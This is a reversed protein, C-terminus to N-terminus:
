SGTRDTESNLPKGPPEVAQDIKEPPDKRDEDERDLVEEARKLLLGYAHESLLGAAFALLYLTEQRVEQFSANSLVAHAAMDLVFMALALFMGLIPRFIYASLGGKENPLLYDKTLFILSGFAGLVLLIIFTDMLRIKRNEAEARQAYDEMWLKVDVPVLVKATGQPGAIEPLLFYGPILERYSIDAQTPKDSSAHAILTDRTMRFLVDYAEDKQDQTSERLQLSEFGVARLMSELPPSGRSNLDNDAIFCQLRNSLTAHCKSLDRSEISIIRDVSMKAIINAIGFYLAYWSSVSLLVIWGMLILGKALKVSHVRMWGLAPLLKILTNM